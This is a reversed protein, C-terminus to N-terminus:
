NFDALLRKLSRAAKGRHSLHNKETDSLEAATRDLEPLYLLPDYGFGNSGAPARGIVGEFTEQVAIFRYDDFVAVMSCVFFARRNDIDKMKELLYENREPTSLMRGFVDSGYRASFIGPEGKLAPVVLGSDDAIVPYPQEPGLQKWLAEAKGRANGFFSLETEEFDFEIGFDKPMLITHDDLIQELEEKKHANNTALVLKM